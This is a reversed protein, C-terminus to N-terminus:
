GSEEAQSSLVQSSETGLSGDLGSVKAREHVPEDLVFLEAALDPEIHNASLFAVVKRGTFTEVASTLDDRMMHQFAHRMELVLKENGRAALSQETKTMADELVCLVLNGSHVTRAKTPGRGVYEALLGVVANSIAADLAGARPAERPSVMGTRRM